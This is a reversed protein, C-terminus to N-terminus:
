ATYWKNIVNELEQYHKQHTIDFWKIRTDKKFWTAQKKANFYESKKWQLIASEFSIEGKLFSFLEKYGNSTKVQNSLSSYIKFLEQAEELAGETLRKKTRENIKVQIIAQSAILGILLIDYEEKLGKTKKNEGPYEKNYKQVEIARILRRRNNRDSNNLANFTDISSKKLMSRLLEPSLKELEKRLGNDPPVSLTDVGDILAKIYFGSGGVLIPLKGKRWIGDITKKALLYFDDVSFEYSPFVIDLLHLPVTDVIYHGLDYKSFLLEETSFFHSNRPIDKGAIINLGKYVQRSDASVIEGFFKRSLSLGIKTKGVATPGVICLLKKM